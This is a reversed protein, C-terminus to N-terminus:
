LALREADSAIARLEEATADSRLRNARFSIVRVNGAVYGLSPCIRDLSPSTDIPGAKKNPVLPIGLVPCSVPVEPVDDLALSFPLGDRKARRKAQEWM